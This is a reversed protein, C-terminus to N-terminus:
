NQLTPATDNLGDYFIVLDLVNGRQLESLLTIVEQTSCFGSEGYNTAVARRGSEHLIKSLLSPVTQEDNTCSGWITSGRFVFLKTPAGQRQDAQGDDGVPRRIGVKDIHLHRLTLPLSRWYVFPRWWMVRQDQDRRCELGFRAEDDALDRYWRNIPGNALDYFGLRLAVEAILCIVM